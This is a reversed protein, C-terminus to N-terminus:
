PVIVSKASLWQATAALAENAQALTYRHSVLEAFPFRDPESQLIQLAARL